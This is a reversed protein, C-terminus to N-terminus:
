NAAGAIGVEPWNLNGASGATAGAATLVIGNVLQATTAGVGTALQGATASTALRTGVATSAASRVVCRGYVQVWGYGNLDGATASVVGVPHGQGAAPAALTTTIAAAVNTAPNVVVAQGVTVASGFQVYRYAKPGETYSHTAGLTGLAFEPGEAQTRVKDAGIGLVYM